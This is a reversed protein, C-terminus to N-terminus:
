LRSIARAGLTQGAKALFASMNLEVRNYALRNAQVFYSQALLTPQPSDDRAHLTLLSQILGERPSCPPQTRGLREGAKGVLGTSIHLNLSWAQQM